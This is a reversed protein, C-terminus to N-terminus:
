PHRGAASADHRRLFGIIGEDPSRNIVLERLGGALARAIGSLMQLHSQVTPSVLVFVASVPQDNPAGFAVPGSLFCLGLIPRRVDAVFPFRAHPLALGDGIATTGRAAHAVIMERLLDRDVSPPLRLRDVADVIAATATTGTLGRHIGGRELAPALIGADSTAPAPDALAIGRRQAWELVDVRNLRLQEDFLVAPLGHDRIWRHVQGETTGLLEAAKTITLHM